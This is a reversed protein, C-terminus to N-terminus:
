TKELFPGTKGSSARMVGEKDQTGSKKRYVSKPATEDVPYVNKQPPTKRSSAKIQRNQPWRRGPLRTASPFSTTDDVRYVVSSCCIPTLCPAIVADCAACLSGRWGSCRDAPAVVTHARMGAIGISRAAKYYPSDDSSRSHKRGKPLM